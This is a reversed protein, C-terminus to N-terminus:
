SSPDNVALTEKCFETADGSRSIKVDIVRVVGDSWVGALLGLNRLIDEDDEDRKDRAMPCWALRRLDGWDTCLILRLRPKTGMDLTKTLSDEKKAKFTWLQLACPYPASPRFAPAVKGELPASYSEKQGETIPAVVALYQTLGPQNPAWGMAQIKNGFNIIWGERTKRKETSGQEAKSGGPANAGKGQYKREGWAEGFNFSENQELEAVKQNDAPGFLVTHKGKSKPIYVRRVEDEDIKELRQRKRFREGIDSDYYWDWGHTRERKMDEPDAGFTPGYGYDPFSGAENLSGRTPFTSDIGQCWRDRTYTMALLDREDTGFNVQLYLNKSTHAQPNFIGRSHSHAEDGMVKWDLSQRPPRRGSRKPKGKTDPDVEDPEDIEMSSPPREDEADESATGADESASQDVEEDEGAQSAAFEEDSESIDQVDEAKQKGKDKQPKESDSDDSLVGALAFPDSIYKTRAGSQRASRRAPM